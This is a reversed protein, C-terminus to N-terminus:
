LQNRKRQLRTRRRHCSVCRVECARSEEELLRLGCGSRALEVVNGRKAGMHDFELVVLRSDGCDACDSRTLLERVYKLNRREAQTLRPNGEIADPDLRWSGNRMATRIRHCNACVVDCTALERELRRISSGARVMDAVNGRKEGLHDFELVRADTEGCDSCHHAQLYEEIFARAQARRRVRASRSQDRHTQGRERFYARYCDRCWWQHGDRHRNFSALPLDRQCRGCRRHGVDDEAARIPPSVTVQEALAPRIDRVWLSATSLAIGAKNAITRVSHGAARLERAEERVAQPYRMGM